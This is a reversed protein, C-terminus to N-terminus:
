QWANEKEDVEDDNIACVVHPSGMLHRYSSENEDEKEDSHRFRNEGDKIADCEEDIAVNRVGRKCCTAIEADKSHCKREAGEDDEAVAIEFPAASENHMLLHEVEAIKGVCEVAVAYGEEGVYVEAGKVIPVFLIHFGDDIEDVVLLAIHNEKCAVEDVVFGFFCKRVHGEEAGELCGVSDKGDQAIVVVAVVDYLGFGLLHAIRLSESLYLVFCMPLQKLVGVM